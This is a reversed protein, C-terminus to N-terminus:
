GVSPIETRRLTEAIDAVHKEVIDMIRSVTNWSFGENNFPKDPDCGHAALYAGISKAVSTEDGVFGNLHHKIRTEIDGDDYLRLSFWLANHGQEDEAMKITGPYTEEIAAITQLMHDPEMGNLVVLLLNAPSITKPLSRDNRIVHELINRCRKSILHRLLSVSLRKGRIDMGLHFAAVNDASIADEPLNKPVAFAHDTLQTGDKFTITPRRPHHRMRCCYHIEEIAKIIERHGRPWIFGNKEVFVYLSFITEDDLDDPLDILVPSSIWHGYEEKVDRFQHRLGEINALAIEVADLEAFQRIAAIGKCNGRRANLSEVLQALGQTAETLAKIIGNTDMSTERKDNPHFDCLPNM